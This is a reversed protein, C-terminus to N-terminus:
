PRPPQTTGYLWAQFLTDLDKGSAKEAAAIFQETTVNGNRHETAWSKLLGLFPQEGITLRLANLTMAGRQYVAPGFLGDVGPNGTPHTWDFRAYRRDFNQQITTEGTHEQWLWEAYTAFGENLWIDQWRELAVSDGFWQHAV